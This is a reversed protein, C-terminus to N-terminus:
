RSLVKFTWHPVATARPELQYFTKDPIEHQACLASIRYAAPPQTQLRAILARLLETFQERDAIADSTVAPIRADTDIFAAIKPTTNRRPM